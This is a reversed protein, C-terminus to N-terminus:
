YPSWQSEEELLVSYTYKLETCINKFYVQAKRQKAYHM